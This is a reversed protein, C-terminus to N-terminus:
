RPYLTISTAKAPLTLIETHTASLSKEVTGGGLGRLGPALPATTFDSGRATEFRDAYLITETAEANSDPPPKGPTGIRVPSGSCLKM